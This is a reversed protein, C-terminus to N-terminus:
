HSRFEGAIFGLLAKVRPPAHTRHVTLAHIGIEARRAGELVLRLRGAAVDAAVLFSPVVALGIGALAAERISLGDTASFPGRTPIEVIRGAQRFAWELARPVLLYHLCAHQVLDAPSAPTGRRALYDPSGCIVLRDTALRRSVL